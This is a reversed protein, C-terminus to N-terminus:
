EVVEMEENIVYALRKIGEVIKDDDSYTFNLRMSNHKEGHPYFASGSVYAVKAKLARDLMKTTDIREDLSVWLFMGGHPKTWTAAEPFYEELSKIMLDRKKRYLDVTKPIQRYIAGRKLYEYAIYESLSDSALDLGQKLLNIKDIVERPAIVYGLRLGPAMVKSFTGLYIVNGNKDMSKISQVPEGDYRLQGYPNDEVIPIEYRESIELLRKRRDLSMTTGAPNQFTPIVYIFKPKLGNQSLEKIKAELEDVNMGNEDIDIAMMNATNANFASIAGVYTPGETIVPDNPNVFIKAIAYLAQQSGTTLIIEERKANIGETKLVYKALEDRLVDLGETTGYQLAKKGYNDMIDALIEKMEEVPFSEPNPMGGGFSILEPDSTYKLLSRIESPKIYRFIESFKYNM